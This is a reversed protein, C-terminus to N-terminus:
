WPATPGAPWRAGRLAPHSAPRPGTRSSTSPTPGTVSGSPSACRHRQGPDRREGGRVAAPDGPRPAGRAVPRPRGAAGPRTVFDPVEDVLARLEDVVVVLRPRARPLRPSRVRQYAELDSAGVAAFLRERRRLEARLRPWPAPSWTTTSTPSWVSSTPCAPARASPPGARSTSSCSPSSRRRAVLDGTLHGAHPPVGVQGLGDHRRRARAPRRPVPRDVFPGDPGQGSSRRRRRGPWRAPRAALGARAIRRGGVRRSRACRRAADALTSGPRCGVAPGRRRLLAPAGPGALAPRDVLRGVLDPVFAVPDQGATSVHLATSGHRRGCRVRRSSLGARRGRSSSCAAASAASAQVLAGTDPGAPARRAVLDARAPAAGDRRTAM